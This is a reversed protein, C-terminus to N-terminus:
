QHWHGTSPYLDKHVGQASASEQGIVSEHVQHSTSLVQHGASKHVPHGKVQQLSCKIMSRHVQRHANPSRKGAESKHM